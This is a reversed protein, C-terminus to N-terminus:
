QVMAAGNGVERLEEEPNKEVVAAAPVGGQAM